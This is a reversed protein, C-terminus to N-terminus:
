ASIATQLHHGFRGVVTVGMERAVGTDQQSYLNLSSRAHAVKSILQHTIVAQALNSRLWIMLKVIGFIVCVLAALLSLLQVYGEKGRSVWDVRV